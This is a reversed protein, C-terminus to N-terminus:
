IKVLRSTNEGIIKAMRAEPIEELGVNAEVSHPFKCDPHNNDSAFIM